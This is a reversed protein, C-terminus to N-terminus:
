ADGPRVRRILIEEVDRRDVKLLGRRGVRYAPLRGDKIMRTVTVPHCDGELAAQAVSILERRPARTKSV